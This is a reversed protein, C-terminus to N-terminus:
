MDVSGEFHAGDAIAVRPASIVGEVSATESVSIKESATLTGTVEGFVVISKALVQAKVKGRPGVTVVHQRLEIKGDVEGEIEIDEGGKVNGNIVLGQGITTVDGSARTGADRKRNSPTPGARPADLIDTDIAFGSEDRTRM